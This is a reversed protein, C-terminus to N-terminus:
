SSLDSAVNLRQVVVYVKLSGVVIKPPMTAATVCRQAGALGTSWYGCLAVTEPVHLRFCEAPVEPEPLRVSNVMRRFVLAIGAHATEIPM